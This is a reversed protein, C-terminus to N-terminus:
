RKRRKRVRPKEQRQDSKTLQRFIDELSGKTRTFEVVMWGQEKAVRSIATRNDRSCILQIRLEQEGADPLRRIDKVGEVSSLYKRVKPFDVAHLSLQFELRGSSKITEATGDAVIRGRDIIVIRDCTAEAESLIHTSFIITKERGIERVIARIDVIQNPDLGSTPEDLILIDPNGILAHALGVRQKYGRSLEQFPRHMVERLGCIEALEEIRQERRSAALDRISAVYCLYDYVLMDAYLPAFEPLYGILKKVQRPNELIDFDGIRVTGTTPALYCTLIRMTTTKGAGNPGLLGLIEGRGVEFSIRDLAKFTGYYKTLNEIKIM